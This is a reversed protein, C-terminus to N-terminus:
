DFTKELWAIVETEFTKQDDKNSMQHDGDKLIVLKKPDSANSYLNYANEVPVTRDKDGHFILLNHLDSVKETLDFLLNDEFFSLPLTPRRDNGNLPIQGITLSNVPAACLIAGWPNLGKDALRSWASICTSGGLSSGFLFIKLSTLNLKLVYEIAHLMDQVRKSLSTDIVFDGESRGCGRHDFRLFAFGKEPLIQSLIKQKASEMSGELGHSGVVLPPNSNSPLHLVGYLMSNDCTFEIEKIQRNM